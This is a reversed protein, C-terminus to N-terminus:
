STEDSNTATIAEYMVSIVSRLLLLDVIPDLTTSSRTGTFDFDSLIGSKFYYRLYVGITDSDEVKTVYLYMCVYLIYVYLIYM